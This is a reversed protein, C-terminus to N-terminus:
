LSFCRQIAILILKMKFLALDMGVCKRNDLFLLVGGADGAVDLAGVVGADPALDGVHHGDLSLNLHFCHGVCQLHFHPTAM